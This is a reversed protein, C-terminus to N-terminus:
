IVAGMLQKAYPHTIKKLNSVAVSEVFMGKYLFDIRDCFYVASLLDHTIFVYTKNEENQICKLMDMIEVQTHSDLSSVAEDFIIIPAQTALARAICIRQMQGGSLEHPLRFLYTENLGVKELYQGIIQNCESSDKRRFQAHTRLSELMIERVTMRPNASSSYDQFVISVKGKIHCQGENPKLLHCLVKGLTSKGSGSEGLIGVCEGNKVSFDLNKLVNQEEKGWISKQNEKKFKVSLNKIEIM